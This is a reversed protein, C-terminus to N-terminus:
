QSRPIDDRQSFIMERFETPTKGNTKKFVRSFYMQDAFGVSYAVDKVSLDSNALMIEARSIRRRIIYDIISIGIENKFMRYLYSRDIKLAEAVDKVTCDKGAYHTDIYRCARYVYGESEIKRGPFKEIYYSLLLLLCGGLRYLSYFEGNNPPMQFLDEFGDIDIKGLVPTQRSFAVRSLITASEVGSFELWTYRAGPKKEIEFVSFPFILASDGKETFFEKGDIIIKCPEGYFYILKYSERLTNEYFLGSSVENNSNSHCCCDVLNAEYKIM